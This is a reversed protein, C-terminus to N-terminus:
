EKDRKAHKDTRPSCNPNPSPYRIHDIGKEELFPALHRCITGRTVESLRPEVQMLAKAMVSVSAGKEALAKILVIHNNFHYHYLERGKLLFSMIEDKTYRKKKPTGM